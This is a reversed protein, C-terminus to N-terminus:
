KALIIAGKRTENPWFTDSFEYYSLSRTLTFFSTAMQLWLGKVGTKEGNMLTPSMCTTSIRHETMSFPISVTLRDASNVLQPDNSTRTYSWLHGCEEPIQPPVSNQSHRRQFNDTRTCMGAIFQTLQNLQRCHSIIVKKFYNDDTAAYSHCIYSSPNSWLARRLWFSTDGKKLFQQSFYIWIKECFIRYILWLRASM